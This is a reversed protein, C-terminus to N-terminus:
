QLYDESYGAGKPCLNASEPESLDPSKGVSVCSQALTRLWHEKGGDRGWPPVNPLTQLCKENDGGMLSM